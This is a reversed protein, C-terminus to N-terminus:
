AKNKYAFNGQILAEMERHWAKAEELDYFARLVHTSGQKIRVRWKKGHPSIGKFGSTNNTQKARNSVNESQTALRLNTIRNNLGNGDIHDIGLEPWEGHVYAWAIRHSLYLVDNVRISHYQKQRSYKTICGAPKGAFRTNVEKRLEPRFKWTFLGTEQDYDLLNRLQAASVGARFPTAM